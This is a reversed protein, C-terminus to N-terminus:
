FPEVTSRYCITKLKPVSPYVCYQLLSVANLWSCQCKFYYRSPLFFIAVSPPSKESTNFNILCKKKKAKDKPQPFIIVKRNILCYMKKRM